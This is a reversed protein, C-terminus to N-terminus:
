IRTVFWYAAGLILGAAALVGTLALVATVWEQWGFRVDAVELPRRRVRRTM